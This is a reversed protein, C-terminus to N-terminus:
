REIGKTIRGALYGLLFIVAIQWAYAFLGAWWMIGYAVAGIILYLAYSIVYRVNRDHQTTMM